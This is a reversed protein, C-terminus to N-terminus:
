GVAAHEGSEARGDDGEGRVDDVVVVDGLLGLVSV